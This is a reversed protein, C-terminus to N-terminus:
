DEMFDTECAKIFKDYDFNSNYRKCVDAVAKCGLKWQVMKNVSRKSPREFRLAEALATFHKKTM